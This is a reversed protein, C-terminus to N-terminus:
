TSVQPSRDANEHAGDINDADDGTHDAPDKDTPGDNATETSKSANCGM